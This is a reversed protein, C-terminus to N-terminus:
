HNLLFESSNLLAWFLDALAEGQAAQRGADGKGAPATQVAQEIFRIARAKERADPHRAFAALYLTTVRSANDAFPAEVVAALTESRRLSTAETVVKGNMLTLAQLISTQTEVPRETQNAFKTLFESRPSRDGGLISTRVEDLNNSRDRYGTATALSDFLQEPTMGRLPMRAFLRPKESGEETIATSVGDGAASTLQYAQTATLVRLLFPVDFRHAAFERALLDLLEPHSPTSSASVMEDVPEILGNGFLYAWLRNVGARAFYPNKPSTVWDALTARTTTQNSWKPDTNDLFKAPLVKDSGPMAVERKKPDEGGPLLFDMIQQSKVGSFFAAFGWFQERKWDAFPHNHCQACEVNIGLFVRATGAALNEPKFEKASYFALPSAETNALSALAGIGGGQGGLPATLLARTMQDYGANRRVQQRVWGEFGGQQLRVLFNNGAEPILLSRWVNTFHHVYRSSSLIRDVLRARKDPHNDELFERTEAVTPIRGGLDLSVRRLFEADDARAAPTTSTEAWRKAILRDVEQALKRAERAASEPEVGNALPSMLALALLSSAVLVGRRM